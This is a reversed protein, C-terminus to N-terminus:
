LDEILKKLNNWITRQFEPKWGRFKFPILEQKGTEVLEAFPHKGNIIVVAVLGLAWKDGDTSCPEPYPALYATTGRLFRREGRSSVSDNVTAELKMTFLDDCADFDCLKMLGDKNILINGPKVDQHVLKKEELFLLASSM